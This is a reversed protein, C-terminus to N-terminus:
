KSQEEKKLKATLGMFANGLLRRIEDESFRCGNTAFMVAIGHTTLWIGAFLEKSSRASLGTTQCLMKIVEEDGEAAGVIDLMSQGRFADSMFLLKFLNKESRAFDIYALGTGLFGDEGQQLANLIRDNYIQEAKKYVAAKLGEMSEFVRFVPHVSCGVERAVDRVKLHEFGKKRVIEMAANLIKDETVKIQPPM